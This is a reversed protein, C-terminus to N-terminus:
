VTFNQSPKQRLASLFATVILIGHNYTPFLIQVDM